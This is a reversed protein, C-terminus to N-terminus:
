CPATVKRGHPEQEDGGSKEHEGARRDSPTGRGV